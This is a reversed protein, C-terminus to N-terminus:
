LIMEGLRALVMDVLIVFLLAAPYLSARSFLLSVAERTRSRYAKLAPVLLLVMRAAFSGTMLFLSFDGKRTMLVALNMLVALSLAATVTRAAAAEGFRVPITRYHLADDQDRDYWDAPVNQGGVEWCFLWVFVLALFLPSPSPDVAFVAALGGSSKVLGAILFRLYSVELMRCYITELVMSVLFIFACLPNLVWAGALAVIAWGAAWVVAQGVSLAGTAVPHRIYVTDFYERSERYVGQEIRARDTRCDVIDNLAYVATYGAFATLIGVAVIWAPPFAGLWLLATVAPTLFDLLGHATRSLALFLKLHGVAPRAQVGTIKM